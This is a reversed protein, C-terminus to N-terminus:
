KVESGMTTKPDKFRDESVSEWLKEILELLAHIKLWHPSKKIKTWM